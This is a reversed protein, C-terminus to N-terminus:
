KQQSETSVLKVKAEVPIAQELLFDVGSMVTESGEIVVEQPEPTKLNLREVQEPAVRVLYRGMPVLQFLYFGDFETKVEQMVELEKEEELSVNEIPSQFPEKLQVRNHSRNFPYNFFTHKRNGSFSIRRVLKGKHNVYVTDLHNRLRRVMKKKLADGTKLLQIKVNSVAKESDGTRLYVTGDIEGTPTVPFNLLAPRGPRTVVEYGKHAPVWFPDELSATDLVIPTPRNSSLGTLLAIGDEDTKRDRSGSRFKVDKLPEDGKDFAQNNNNDLFVRASATGSSAMPDSRTVWRGKRPERGISFTISSGISFAGDDDYAGNIGVAFSKFRRNLGANYTTLQEGNLQRNLGLSASFDRNLRYDGTIATSTLEPDPKIGYNLAGRLSLRLFRGSLQFTGTGTTLPEIDGGRTLSWDLSNSASTGFLFMSVRNTLEIQDVGSERRELEGTISWPIRPVLGLSPVSSDLRAKSRHSVPDFLNEERESQFEFFRSHELFLNLGMLNTLTAAQLATGGIDNKTVDVRTSAGLLGSRFGLTGFYRRGEELPLSAFNGALSLWRTVGHQYEAIYRAQGDGRIPSSTTEEDEVEFLDRNQFSTAFRFYHKGPSAQDQGVNVRQVEERRQGQPGYFVLRIVNSGFLLPVDLFEYRGDANPVTQASLLIENRYLEVEWGVQLEGRLNVRDFESERLLPFSSVQFGAGSQSNAILPIQPGFVDGLSFESARLPGLLEGDPDQRGMRLRLSSLNDERDGAIFVDTNMFLFDGSVLNSSDVGFERTESNYDFNYSSNIAPWSLLRYPPEKRPYKPRERTGRGLRAHAKERKLKEEFPLPVEATVKVLLASLDFEFDVPFWKALLTSDVFIDEPYLVVLNPDFRRSKGEIVVEGRAVDLSFRQNESIFWGEAQKAVPDVTIAFDLMQTVEGLPLLLGGRQLYGIMGDSLIYRGFRFELVLMEVEAPDFVSEQSGKGQESTKSGALSNKPSNNKSGTTPPQIKNDLVELSEPAATGKAEASHPAVGGLTLSACFLFILAPVQM